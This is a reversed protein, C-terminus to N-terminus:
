HEMLDKAVVVEGSFSRKVEDAYRQYDDQPDKSQPLHTLVVKKVGARQAMTGVQEPSIHEDIMHRSWGAQQAATWRAWSGDATRLAKLEEFSSVETVLLDAGKALAELSASPGTDGSFVISRSPTEVRYSYSKTTGSAPSNPPFNFHSNEAARVTINGDQYVVGPEVDHGTFVRDILVSRTAESVRIESNIMLFQLAAAVLKSTGSPGFVSVPATRDFDYEVSMLPVLGTTHDDHLHTVFIADINRIPLGTEALRRVAGDGVDFVYLRGNIMLVNSSQARAGTPFPGSRTGLTILRDRSPAADQPAAPAASGLTMPLSLAAMMASLFSHFRRPLRM